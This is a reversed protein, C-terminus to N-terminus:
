CSRAEEVSSSLDRDHWSGGNAARVGYGRREGGPPYAQYHELIDQSWFELTELLSWAAQLARDARMRPLPGLHRCVKELFLGHAYSEDLSAHAVMPKVIGRSTPEYHEAVRAFFARASDRDAGTSELFGSCAAYALFDHRAAERMCNLVAGTGPLPRRRAVEAGMGAAQLASLFFHRHDYEEAFHRVFVARASADRCAAICMPLRITVGEIFHYSEILWGLFVDRPASGQALSTWLPHSFLREKWLPFVRRCTETFTDPTVFDSAMGAEAVVGNELMPTLWKILSACDTHASAAIDQLARRGDMGRLVHEAVDIDVGQIRIECEANSVVMARDFPPKAVSSMWQADPDLILVSQGSLTESIAM